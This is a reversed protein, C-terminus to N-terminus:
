SGGAFSEPIDKGRAPSFRARDWARISSGSRRRMGPQGSSWRILSPNPFHLYRAQERRRVASRLECFIDGLPDSGEQILDRLISLTKKAPPAVRSCDAYYRAKWRQGHSFRLPGWRSPQRNCSRVRDHFDRWTRKPAFDAKRKGPPPGQDAHPMQAVEDLDLMFCFTGQINRARGRSKM